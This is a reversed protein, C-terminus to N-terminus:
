LEDPEGKAAPTIVEAEFVLIILPDSTDNLLGHSGFPPNLICDGARVRTQAGDVTMLGEGSLVIYLEEDAGHQHLGVSCGPPIISHVLFRLGSSFDASRFVCANSVLGAGGHSSKGTRPVSLFNRIPM